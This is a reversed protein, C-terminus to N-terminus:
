GDWPSGWAWLAPPLPVGWADGRHPKLWSQWTETLGLGQAHCQAATVMRMPFIISSLLRLRGPKESIEM